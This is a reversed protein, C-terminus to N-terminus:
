GQAEFLACYDLLIDEVALQVNLPHASTRRVETLRQAFRVLGHVDARPALSQLDAACDGHYGIRGVMRLSLLDYMWRQLVDIWDLYAEHEMRALQEAENWVRASDARALMELWGARRAMREVDNWALAALPAGGALDLCLGPQAVGQGALWELAGARDPLPHRVAHCRSLVTPLLRAPQDTVLLLLTRDPPEELTKLLANSAAVNMVHAQHIWVVRMPGHAGIRLFDVAQRISDVGIQALKRGPTAEGGEEAAAVDVELVDPHQAALLWRCSDCQGCAQEATPHACLLWQLFAGALARKGGGAPGQLLVAHPLRTRLTRLQRVPESQWPYPQHM